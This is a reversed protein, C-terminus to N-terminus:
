LRRMGLSGPFITWMGMRITARLERGLWIVQRHGSFRSVGAGNAGPERGSEAAAGREAPVGRHDASDRRWQHRHVRRGAGAPAGPRRGVEVSPKWEPLGLLGAVRGPVQDDLQWNSYKAWANFRWNTIGVRGEANRVFIPGSDRTWSRNTPWLHFSVRDLNAGARELIGRARRQAKADEVLIHVRERAALLRVIEAYVWPIAQFKGPWDEPNHPWALWTAEHREWEAPMRYGLARPTAAPAFSGTM